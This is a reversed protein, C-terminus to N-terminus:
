SNDLSIELVNSFTVEMGNVILMASGGDFRVAEVLGNMLTTSIVPAGDKKSATVEFQYIGAELLVGDSDKGNWVLSHDGEEMVAEEDLIRVVKGDENKITITVKDASDDLRFQLEQDNSGDFAVTDGIASIEKGILTAAMTNNISQTLILDMNTGEAVNVDISSLKELSSFEAMQAVFDQSDMPSLPDQNKLQEVLLQMFLDQDSGTQLVNTSANTPMFSSVGNIVSM